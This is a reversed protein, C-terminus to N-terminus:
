EEDVSEEMICLSILVIVETCENTTNWNTLVIHHM